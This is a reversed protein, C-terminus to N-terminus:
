QIAFVVRIVTRVEQTGPSIPTRAADAAPAAQPAMEVPMPPASSIEEIAIPRGLTVGGLRALQEAKARANNMAEERGQTSAAAPDSVGFSIGQIRTAGQAVVADLLPGVKTIDRVTVLVLNTARYGRLTPTRNSFDYDPSLNFSSTRIDREEIGQNRLEAIVSDMRAAADQQAGSASPNTVEVGLTVRALDPKVTIAGEGTVFIGTTSGFSQPGPITQGAPGIAQSAHAASPGSSPWAVAALAVAGAALALALAAVGAFLPQRM